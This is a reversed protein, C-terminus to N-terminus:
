KALVILGNNFDKVIHWGNNLHFNTAPDIKQSSYLNYIITDRIANNRLILNPSLYYQTLFYHTCGFSFDENPEGVYTMRVPKTFMKKIEEFRNGYQTIFDKGYDQKTVQVPSEFKAEYRVFTVFMQWSFVCGLGVLLITNLISIIQAKLKM